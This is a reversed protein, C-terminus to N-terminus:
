PQWHIGFDASHFPLRFFNSDFFFSPVLALVTVDGGSREASKLGRSGTDRNYASISEFITYHLLRLTKRWSSCIVFDSTTTDCVCQM